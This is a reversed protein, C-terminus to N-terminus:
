TADTNFGHEEDTEALGHVKALSSPRNASPATEDYFDFWPYGRWAYEQRTVPTSPPPEDTITRWGESNILHIWIRGTAEDAPDWAELGHPDKFIQQEIEGGAALGMECSYFAFPDEGGRSVPGDESFPFTM